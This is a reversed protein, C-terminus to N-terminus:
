TVPPRRWPRLCLATVGVVVVAAGYCLVRTARHSWQRAAWGRDSPALRDYWEDYHGRYGDGEDWAYVRVTEGVEPPAENNSRCGTSFAGLRVSRVARVVVVEGARVGGREVEAVRVHVRYSDASLSWWEEVEEVKGVVVLPATRRDQPAATARVPAAAWLVVLAAIPLRFRCM